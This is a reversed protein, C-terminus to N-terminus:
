DRRITMPDMGFLGSVYEIVGHGLKTAEIRGCVTM